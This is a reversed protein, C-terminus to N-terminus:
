VVRENYTAGFVVDVFVLDGSAILAVEDDGMVFEPITAAIATKATPRTAATSARFCWRRCTRDSLSSVVDRGANGKLRALRHYRFELVTAM